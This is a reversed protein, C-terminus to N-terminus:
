KNKVAQLLKRVIGAKSMSDTVVVGVRIAESRLAEEPWDMSPGAARQSPSLGSEPADAIPPSEMAPTSEVITPEVIPASEIVPISEKVPIEELIASPEIIPNPSVPSAVPKVTSAATATFAAQINADSQLLMAEVAASRKRVLELQAEEESDFLTIAGKALYIAGDPSGELLRMAMEFSTAISAKTLDLGSPPVNYCRRKGGKDSGIHLSLNTGRHNRLM